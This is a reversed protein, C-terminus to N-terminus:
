MLSSRLSEQLHFCTQFMIKSQSSSSFYRQICIEMRTCSYETPHSSIQMHRFRFKAAPELISFSDLPKRWDLSRSFKLRLWSCAWQYWHLDISTMSSVSSVLAMLRVAPHKQLLKGGALARASWLCHNHFKAM